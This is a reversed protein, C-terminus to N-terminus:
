LFILQHLLNQSASTEEASIFSCSLTNPTSYHYLQCDENRVSEQLKDFAKTAGENGEEGYKQTLERFVDEDM